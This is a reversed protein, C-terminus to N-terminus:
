AREMRQDSGGPDSVAMPRFPIEIRTRFGEGGSEVHFEHRGPYLRALRARTNALGIGNGTEAATGVGAGNDGVEIRLTGGACSAEIWILGGAIRPAIGHRVANEVLPQLLLHPVAATRAEPEVDIRVRLRSGLRTQEIELYPALFELEETLSVEQRNSASLASRFLDGLRALMRDAAPVDHHMLSSITNLTNFLFHPHIEMKLAHLQARTLQTELQAERLERDRLRRLAEIAYGWGVVLFANTLHLPYSSQYLLYAGFSAAAEMRPPRAPLHYFLAEQALSLGVALAVFLLLARGWRRPEFPVHRAVWAAALSMVAYPGIYRLGSTFAQPWTAGGTREILAPSNRVLYLHGTVLLFFFVWIGGFVAWWAWRSSRSM